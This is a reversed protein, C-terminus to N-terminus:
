AGAAKGGLLRNETCTKYSATHDRSGIQVSHLLSFYKKRGPISGRRRPRGAWPRTAIGVLNRRCGIYRTDLCPTLADPAHLQGSLEM